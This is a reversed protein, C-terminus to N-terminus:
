KSKVVMTSIWADRGEYLKIRYWKKGDAGTKEELVNLTENRPIIGVRNSEIDPRARVNAIDTNVVVKKLDPDRKPAAPKSVAVPTPTPASVAPQAASNAPAGAAPAPKQVEAPKAEPKSAPATVATAPKPAAPTFFGNSLFYYAALGLIIVVCAAAGILIPTRVAIRKSDETHKATGLPISEEIIVKSVVHGDVTYSSGAYLVLLCRDCIYNILRPYGRSATHILKMARDQFELPGKAGAKFLRYNIYAKVEPYTLPRICYTVTIRQSLHRMAPDKLKDLFEPQAFFVTHLIKQKDTEINSLLRVFELLEYSLLQAEDIILVNVKGRQFEELLYMRLRDYLEKKTEPVDAAGYEHLVEKMFETDDSVPNLILATNYKERDLTNLFVRSMMTKGSGVDGYILAFGEQQAIFFSLYEIAQRHEASDFYFAPDPSMGFPKETLGFFELYPIEM